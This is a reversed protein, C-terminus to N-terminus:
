GNSKSPKALSSGPTIFEALDSWVGEFQLTFCEGSDFQFEVATTHSHEYGCALLTSSPFRRLVHTLQRTGKYERSAIFVLDDQTRACYIPGSHDLFTETETRSAPRLYEYAIIPAILLLLAIDLVTGTGVFNTYWRTRQTLFWIRALTAEGIIDDATADAISNVPPM